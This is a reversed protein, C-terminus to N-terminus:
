IFKSFQIGSVVILFGQTFPGLAGQKLIVGCIVDGFGYTAFAIDDFSKIVNEAILARDSYPYCQTFRLGDTVDGDLGAVIGLM